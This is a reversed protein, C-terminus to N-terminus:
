SSLSHSRRFTTPPSRSHQIFWSIIKIDRRKKGTYFWSLSFHPTAVYRVNTLHGAWRRRVFRVSTLHQNEWLLTMSKRCLILTTLWFLLAVCSEESGLRLVFGEHHVTDENSTCRSRFGKCMQYEWRSFAHDCRAVLWNISKTQSVNPAQNRDLRIILIGVTPWNSRWRFLWSGCAVM